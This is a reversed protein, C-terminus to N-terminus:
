GWCYTGFEGGDDLVIPVAKISGTNVVRDMTELKANISTCGLGNCAALGVIAYMFFWNHLGVNIVEEVLSPNAGASAGPAGLDDKGGFGVLLVNRDGEGKFVGDGSTVIGKVVKAVGMASQVENTEVALGAKVLNCNM